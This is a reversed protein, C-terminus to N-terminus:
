AVKNETSKLQDQLNGSHDKEVNNKQKHLLLSDVQELIKEWSYNELVRSRAAHSMVVNPGGKLQAIARDAFDQENKEVFLEQGHLACIGEAAQPSVIVIKEMSMAELVKNQIGRAIQLPVVVLSAHAIYPRIDKVLGTVTIGSLASLAIVRATPRSGVIYFEVLPIQARILPFVNHAFWEVANVNAWYDMAGTFVLTRINSPYPNPYINQPAFYDADVGNNFYTIKETTEPALQKFFNAETESVFTTSDFTNAIKREYDLLLKSERRYLWNLPWPKTKSYQKWKDSDVDVFDIVRHTSCSKDVYQAMSSSFVLINKLSQKKLLNNVWVQLKKDKYYPLTLPHNTLMGLLSRMRAALPHLKIFCAESCLEKVKEVYEWDKEDDIFTGLYVHYHQSLHKLLHYSRIKDGKNPPYPIRHVLYLLNQM